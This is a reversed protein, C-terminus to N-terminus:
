KQNRGYKEIIENYRMVVEEIVEKWSRTLTAAAGRGAAIIKKRDHYLERIKAAYSEPSNECLFGNYGDTIVEATTSGSLVLSPTGMMAAERVVLPANDYFSPFPFLDAAAYYEKLTNRDPIMGHLTIRDELHLNKVLEKMENVAYGTGIFSAKIPLDRLLDIAKIILLVGKEKIHQGVFLLRVENSDVGLKAKARNKIALIEDFNDAALDIGNDVVTLKGKYGYERVTEEVKAQPIWVEDAANFFDMVRKMIKKVMWEPLSHELDTRYKSHFTAVLPVKHRKAAYVALRGSSFPCHAHVIRFPIRKMKHWIFPDLKPYGYRYPKRSSIPLSFYRYIDYNETIVAKEPNWPTVVCVKKGMATMWKAYNEVALTVGDLVPPFSDNFIGYVEEPHNM